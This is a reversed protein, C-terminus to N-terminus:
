SKRLHLALGVLLIGVSTLMALRLRPSAAAAPGSEEAPVVDFYGNFM